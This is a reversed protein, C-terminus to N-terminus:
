NLTKSAAAQPANPQELMKLAEAIANALHMAAAPSCRLHGNIVFEVGTKQGDPILIRSALEIQVAGNMVGYTPAIDFYIIPAGPDRIVPPLSNEDSDQVEDM